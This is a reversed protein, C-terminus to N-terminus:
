KTEIGLRKKLFEYEKAADADDPYSVIYEALAEYAKALENREEYLAVQNRLLQQRAAAGPVGLGLNLMEQAKDYEFLALYCVAEQNCVTPSEVASNSRYREFSAIADEYRGDLLAIEGLFYDAEFFGMDYAYEMEIKASKYNGQYFHVQGLCYKDENTKVPLRAAKDLLEEAKATDGTAVYCTYLGIYASYSEGSLSLAAEYDSVAQEYRGEVRYLNGRKQFARANEADRSLIDSYIDIASTRYGMCELTNAKYFLIDVDWGKEASIDLANNFCTLADSYSQKQLYVMGKGRIAFKNLREAKSGESASNVLVIEFERLAEDYRKLQLFTMGYNNHVELNANDLELARSFYEAAKEYDGAEYYALGKKNENQPTMEEDDCAVLLLMSVTLLLVSGFWRALRRMSDREANTIAFVGRLTRKPPLASENRLADSARM